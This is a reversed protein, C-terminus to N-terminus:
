KVTECYKEEFEESVLTTEDLGTLPAFCEKAWWIGLHHPFEALEYYNKNQDVVTYISGIQLEEAVKKLYPDDGAKDRKICIVRM